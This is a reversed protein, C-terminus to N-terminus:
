FILEVMERERKSLGYRALFKLEKKVHLGDERNEKKYELLCVSEKSCAVAIRGHFTSIAGLTWRLTYKVGCVLTRTKADIKLLLLQNGSSCLLYSSLFPVISTVMDPVIYEGVRKLKYRKKAGPKDNEKFNYVLVRGQKQPTTSSTSLNSSSGNSDDAKVHGNVYGWTGVCIYRRKEKVKWINLALCQEGKNLRELVYPESAPHSLDYLMISSTMNDRSSKGSTLAVIVTNSTEDFM